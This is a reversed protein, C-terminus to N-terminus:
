LFCNDTEDFPQLKLSAFDRIFGSLVFRQERQLFSSSETFSSKRSSEGSGRRELQYVMKNQLNGVVTAWPSGKQHHCHFCTFCDFTRNNIYARDYSVARECHMIELVCHFGSSVVSCQQTLNPRFFGRWFVREEHDFLHDSVPPESLYIHVRFILFVRESLGAKISFELTKKPKEPFTM